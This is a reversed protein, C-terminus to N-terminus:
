HLLLKMIYVFHINLNYNTLMQDYFDQRLENKYKVIAKICIYILTSNSFPEVSVKFHHHMNFREVSVYYILVFLHTCTSLCFEICVVELVVQM